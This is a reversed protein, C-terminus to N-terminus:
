TLQKCVVVLALVVDELFVVEELVFFPPM